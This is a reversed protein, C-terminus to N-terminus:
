YCWGTTGFQNEQTKNVKRKPVESVEKRNGMIPNRQCLDRPNGLTLSTRKPWTFKALSV